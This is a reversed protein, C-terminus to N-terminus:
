DRDNRIASFLEEKANGLEKEIINIQNFLSTELERANLVAEKAVRLEELKAIMKGDLEKVKNLKKEVKSNM